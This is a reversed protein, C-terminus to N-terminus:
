LNDCLKHSQTVNGCVFISFSVGRPQFENFSNLYSEWNTENTQCTSGVLFGTYCSHTRSVKRNTSIGCFDLRFKWSPYPCWTASRNKNKVRRDLPHELRIRFKQLKGKIENSYNSFIDPDGFRSRGPKQNKM